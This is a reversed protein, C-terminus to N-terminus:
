PPVKRTVPAIPEPSRVPAPGRDDSVSGDVPLSFPEMAMLGAAAFFLADMEADGPLAPHAHTDIIQMQRVAALLRPFPADAQHPTVSQAEAPGTCASLFFLLLCYLM